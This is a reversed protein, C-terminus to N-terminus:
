HFLYLLYLLYLKFSLFNFIMLLFRKYGNKLTHM